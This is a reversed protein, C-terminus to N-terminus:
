KSEEVLAVLKAKVAEIRTDQPHAKELFKRYYTIATAKDGKEASLEGMRYAAYYAVRCNPYQTLVM